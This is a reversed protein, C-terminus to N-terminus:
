SRRRLARRDKAVESDPRCLAAWAEATRTGVHLESEIAATIEKQQQGAREKLIKLVRKLQEPLPGDTVEGISDAPADDEDFPFLPFRGPIKTVWNIAEHRRVSYDGFPDDGTAATTFKVAFDGGRIAGDVMRAVRQREATWDDPLGADVSPDEGCLASLFEDRTWSEQRELELKWRPQKDTV